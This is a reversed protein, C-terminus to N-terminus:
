QGYISRAIAEAMLRQGATNPHLSPNPSKLREDYFLSRNLVGDTVFLSTLDLCHVTADGAYHTSLLGNIAADKASKMPSILSPLIEVLTIKAGPMRRQLEYVVAIIGYTVRAASQEEHTTNNTGILLVINKPALGDVEGHRLRWLVHQTQDGSFGLNLAHHPAFLSDWIPLFVQEPAPGEKEYNQTISDGVV